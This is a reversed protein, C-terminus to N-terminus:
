VCSSLPVRRQPPLESDRLQSLPTVWGSQSALSPRRAMHISQQPSLPSAAPFLSPGPASAPLAAPACAQPQCLSCHPRQLPPVWPAGSLWWASKRKLDHTQRITSASLHSATPRGRLKTLCTKLLKPPPFASVFGM